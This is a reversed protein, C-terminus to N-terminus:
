FSIFVLPIYECCSDFSIFKERTDHKPFLKIKLPISLKSLKCM